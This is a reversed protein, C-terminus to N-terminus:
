GTLPKNQAGIIVALVPYANTMSFIGEDTMKINKPCISVTGCKDCGLQRYLIELVAWQDASNDHIKDM